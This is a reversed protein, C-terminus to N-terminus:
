LDNKLEELLKTGKSYYHIFKSFKNTPPLEKALQFYEKPLNEVLDKFDGKKLKNILRYRFGLSSMAINLRPSIRMATILEDHYPLKAIRKRIYNEFNYDIKFMPKSIKYLKELTEKLYPTEKVIKHILKYGNQGISKLTDDIVNSIKDYTDHKIENIVHRAWKKAKKYIGSTKKYLKKFIGM